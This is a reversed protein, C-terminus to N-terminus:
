EVKKTSECQKRIKKIIKSIIEKKKMSVCENYKTLYLSALIYQIDQKAIKLEM